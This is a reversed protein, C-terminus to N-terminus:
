IKITAYGDESEIFEYKFENKRTAELIYISRLIVKKAVM